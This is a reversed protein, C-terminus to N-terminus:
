RQKNPNTAPGEAQAKGAERTLVAGELAGAAGEVGACCLHAGRVGAAKSLRKARAEASAHARSSSSIIVSGARKRRSEHLAFTQGIAGTGAVRAPRPSVTGRTAGTRLRARAGVQPLADVTPALAEMPERPGVARRFAAAPGVVRTLHVAVALVVTGALAVGAEAEGVAAALARPAGFIDAVLAAVAVVGALALTPHAEATVVAGDVTRPADLGVEVAERDDKVHAITVPLAVACALALAVLAVGTVRAL